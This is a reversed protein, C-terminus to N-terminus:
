PHTKFVEDKPFLDNMVHVHHPRGMYSIDGYKRVGPEYVSGEIDDDYPSLINTRTRPLHAFRDIGSQSDMYPKRYPFAPIGEKHLDEEFALEDLSLVDETYADWWRVGVIDELFHYTAYIIGREGIEKGGTLILNGEHMHILWHEKATGVVGAQLAHDTKGVYICKGSEEGETVTPLTVDLSKKLYDTLEEAATKEVIAPNRPIVISVDAVGRRLFVTKM